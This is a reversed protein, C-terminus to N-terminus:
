KGAERLSDKITRSVVVAIMITTIIIFSILYILFLVFYIKPSYAKEFYEFVNYFIKKCLCYNIATGIAYSPLVIIACESLYMLAAHKKTCGSIRMISLKRQRKQLIFYYLVAYNVVSIVSLIVAIYIMNNYAAITDNDPFDMEPFILKGPIIMEAVDTMNEYASKTINKDFSFGVQDIQLDNPVTLFPIVPTGYNGRYTGVVEYTNGFLTITGDNNKLKECAENWTSENTGWVMASFSGTAEEENTIYRGSTILGHEEYNKRTVECINYKGDHIVFRMALPGYGEEISFDDIYSSAYIVIMSNLTKDDLAEIYIQFEKKTLTEGNSIEPGLDKTDIEAEVIKTNYNYYLGYSFNIVFASAIICIVTVFFIMKENSIFSRINKLVYKM